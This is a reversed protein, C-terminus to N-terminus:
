LSRKLGIWAPQKVFGLRENIALMACNYTHNQTSIVAVGAAKAYQVASLKLALAIGRRRYSRRVGTLRTALWGPRSGGRLESLGVLEPGDFALFFGEPRWGPHGWFRAQWVAFPWITLPESFPVDGLLATEVEYLARQTSTDGPLDALLKITVGAAATRELGGEFREPRFTALELRSEWMREVKAFGRRAYFNRWYPWDERVRASLATPRHPGLRELATEFLATALDLVEPLVVMDLFVQRQGAQDAYARLAGVPEGGAEALLNLLLDHKRGEDSARLAAESQAVAPRCRNYLATFAPYDAEGFPRLTPTM